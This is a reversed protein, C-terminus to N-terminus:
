RHPATTDSPAMGFMKKYQRYFASYDRFGCQPAVETPRRGNLIMRNALVLRKQVLYRHLSIRMDKQFGHALYSPSIHLAAAIMQVTLEKKLNGNIYDIASKTTPSPLRYEGRPIPDTNCICVAIEALYAKLLLANEEATLPKETLARLKSFITCIMDDQFVAVKKFVRPLIDEFGSVADFNLVMRHYDAEAGYVTFQHFSGKPIVVVTYPELYRRGEDCLFEADGHLFLFIEHYNHIEKGFIDRMGKAYKFVIEDTRIFKAFVDPVTIVESKHNYLM